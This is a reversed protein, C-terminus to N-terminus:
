QTKAISEPQPPKKGVNKIDVFKKLLEYWFGAGMSIAFGTVVWGPIRQVLFPFPRLLIFTSHHQGKLTEPQWGIPLSTKATLENITTSLEEPEELTKLPLKDIIQIVSASVAKENAFQDIMYFTDANAAVAIVFAIIMTIMKANRNYVGKARDMSSDFWTSVEQEFQDVEQTLDDIKSLAKDALIELNNGLADPIPPLADVLTRIEPNTFILAFVLFTQDASTPLIKDIEPNKQRIKELYIKTDEFSPNDGLDKTITTLSEQKLTAYKRVIRITDSLSIQMKDAFREITKPSSFSKQFREPDFIDEDKKAEEAIEQVAKDLSIKKSEFATLILNIEDQLKEEYASQNPVMEQLTGRLRCALLKRYIAVFDFTNLLSASFVTPSIYSPGSTQQGFVRKRPDGKLIKSAGDLPKRITSALGEKSKHNLSRLLPNEYIKNALERAEQSQEPDNGVLLGEISKKLHVARWQLLTKLLEQIESSLLSLTFYVFIISVAIDVVVPLGLNM